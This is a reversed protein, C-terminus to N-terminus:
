RTSPSVVTVRQSMARIKYNATEALSPSSGEATSVPPIHSPDKWRRCSAPAVCIARRARAAIVRRDARRRRSSM